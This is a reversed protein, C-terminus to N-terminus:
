RRRTLNTVAMVDRLSDTSFDSDAVVLEDGTTRATAAVLVDRPSMLDGTQKLHEQLRAGEMAVHESLDIPNVWDFRGRDGQLDSTGSTHVTGMLVEYVCLTSTFYPPSTENDVYEVVHEVGDLYHIIVSSDLVTM